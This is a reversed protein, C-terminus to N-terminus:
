AATYIAESRQIVTSGIGNNVTIEAFLQDTAIIGSTVWTWTSGSLTAVLTGAGINANGAGGGKYIRREAFDAETLGYPAWAGPEVRLTGAGAVLTGTLRLTYNTGLITDNGIYGPASRTRTSVIRMSPRDIITRGTLAVNSWRIDYAPRGAFSTSSNYFAKPGVMLVTDIPNALGNSSISPASLQGIAAYNSSGGFEAYYTMAGTPAGGAGDDVVLGLAFLVYQGPTSTVGFQTIVDQIVTNNAAPTGSVTAIQTDPSTGGKSVAVAVSTGNTLNNTIRCLDAYNGTPAITGAKTGGAGALTPAPHLNSGTLGPYTGAYILSLVAEKTAAVMKAGIAPGLTAYGVAYGGRADMHTYFNATDMSMNTPDYAEGTAVYFVRADAKATVYAQQLQWVRQRRTIAPNLSSAAAENAVTSPLTSCIPIYLAAPNGAIWADANRVWKNWQTPDSDPDTAMLADNHGQSAFVAIDAQQNIAASRRAYITDMDGGSAAQMWAPSPMARGNLYWMAWACPDYFGPTGNESMTGDGYFVIQSGIPALAPGTGSTVAATAVSSQATSGLGNVATVTIALTHGVDGAVPTYTSTTAGVIPAATDAWRWQYTYSTPSGAWTGNTATLLSGVTATGSIAPAVTNSPAAAVAFRALVAFGQGARVTQIPM